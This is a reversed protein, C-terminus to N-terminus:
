NRRKYVDGHTAGKSLNCPACSAVGNSLVTRGGQAVPVYHDAQWNNKSLSTHCYHCQGGSKHWVAERLKGRFRDSPGRDVDETDDDMLRADM